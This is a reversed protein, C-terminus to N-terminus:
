TQILKSIMDKARTFDPAMDVAKQFKKLASDKDGDDYLELGEAYVLTADYSVSESAMIIAKGKEDFRVDLGKAIKWVLQKELKMFDATIGSVGESKLIEGTETKVIRADMRFQGIMEFYSGFLITEAGLLKGLKQRTAPDFERGSSLKLEAMVEELKEREVVRLMQLNSLDSILMDALGKKLADLQANGSSNDFYLIAITKQDTINTRVNVEEFTSYDETSALQKIEAEGTVIEKIDKVDTAVEKQTEAMEKQSEIIVDQKENIEDLTGLVREQFHKIGEINGAIVGEDPYLSSSGWFFVMVVIGILSVASAQSYKNGLAAEKGEAKIIPRLQILYCYLFVLFLAAIIVPAVSMLPSLFDSIIGVVGTVPATIRSSKKFLDNVSKLDSYVLKASKSKQIAM